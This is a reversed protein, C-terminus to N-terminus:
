ELIIVVVGEGEGGPDEICDEEPRGGDGDGVSHDGVDVAATEADSGGDCGDGGACGDSKHALCGTM